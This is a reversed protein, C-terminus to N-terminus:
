YQSRFGNLALILTSYSIIKHHTTAFYEPHLNFIFILFFFASYYIFHM